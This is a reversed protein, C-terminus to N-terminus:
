FVEKRLINVIQKIGQEIDFKPIWGVSELKAGDLLAVSFPSYGKEQESKPLQMDVKVGTSKAVSRAIDRISVNSNKNAINYTEGPIGDSLIKIMGGVVDFMYAYSRVLAGTSKLVINEGNLANRVFQPIVRDDKETFTSGYAFCVRAINSEFGFQKAYNVCINEAMRKSETYCSRPNLQNVLGVSNENYITGPIVPEGYVESSSIYLFRKSGSKRAYDLLNMTGNVNAKITGIPDEDFANPNANSAAHVIYDSKFTFSSAESIDQEVIEFYNKTSYKKFRIQAAKKDRVVAIVKIKDYNCNNYNMLVDVLYSGILGSAGTIMISKNILFDLNYTKCFLNLEEQYIEM